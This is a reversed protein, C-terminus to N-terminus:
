PRRDDHFLVTTWWMCITTAAANWVEVDGRRPEVVQLIRRGVDTTIWPCTEAILLLAFGKALPIVRALVCRLTGVKAVLELRCEPLTALEECRPAPPPAIWGSDLKTCNLAWCCKGLM